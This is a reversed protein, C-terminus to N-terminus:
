KTAIDLVCFYLDKGSRKIREVQIANDPIENKNEVIRFHILYDGNLTLLSASFDNAIGEFKLKTFTMGDSKRDLVTHLDVGAESEVVCLCIINEGDHEVCFIKLFTFDGYHDTLSDFLEEKDEELIYDLGTLDPMFPKILIFAALVACIAMVSNIISFSIKIQRAKKKSIQCKEDPMIEPFILTNEDGTEIARLYKKSMETTGPSVRECYEDSCIKEFCAKAMELEGQRYYILGRHFTPMISLFKYNTADSFFKDIYIERASCEELCADLEGNLYHKYFEISLFGKKIKDGNKTKDFADLLTDLAAKAKTFDGIMAYASMVNHLYVFKAQPRLKKKRLAMVSMNIVTQYEGARFYASSLDAMSSRHISSLLEIYQSNTLGTFATLYINKQANYRTLKLLLVSAVAFLVLTLTTNDIFYLISLILAIYGILIAAEIFRFKLLCSRVNKDKM